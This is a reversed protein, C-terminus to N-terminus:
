LVPNSHINKSYYIMHWCQEQESFCAYSKIWLEKVHLDKQDLKTNILDIKLIKTQECFHKIDLIAHM